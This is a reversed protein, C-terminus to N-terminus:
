LCLPESEAMPQITSQEPRNSTAQAIQKKYNRLGHMRGSFVHLINLLDKTLEVEPSLADESLVVPKGGNSEVVFRILEHGFRALRDRHAVVLTIHTGRMARELIANLGKRKFNIGSGIDKIIEAEPYREQMFSVQRALDDKQKYSSVRCYCVVSSKVSGLYAEVNYKRQGSIRITEIDGANAMRRLTNPHLGLILAAKRSSEYQMFFLYLSNNAKTM